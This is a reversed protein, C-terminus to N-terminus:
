RLFRRHVLAGIAGVTLATVGVQVAGARLGAAAAGGAAAGGAFAPVSLCCLSVLAGLALISGWEPGDDIM